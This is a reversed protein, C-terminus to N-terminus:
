LGAMNGTQRCRVSTQVCLTQDRSANLGEFGTRELTDYLLTTFRSRKDQHTHSSCTISEPEETVLRVLLMHKDDPFHVTALHCTKPGAHPVKDASADSVAPHGLNHALDSIAHMYQVRNDFPM